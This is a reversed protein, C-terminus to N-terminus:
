KRYIPTIHIDGDREEVSMAQLFSPSGDFPVCYDTNGWGLMWWKGNRDQFLPSNGGHPMCVGKFDYPGEITDSM